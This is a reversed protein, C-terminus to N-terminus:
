PMWKPFVIASILGVAPSPPLACAATVLPISSSHVLHPSIFPKETASRTETRMLRHILILILVVPNLFASTSFVLREYRM